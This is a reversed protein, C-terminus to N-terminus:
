ARLSYDRHIIGSEMLRRMRMHRSRLKFPHPNRRHLSIGRSSVTDGLRNEEIHYAAARVNETSGIVHYNEPLRTITDGHSMWVQTPSPVGLM